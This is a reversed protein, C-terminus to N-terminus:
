CCRTFSTTRASSRAADPEIDIAIEIPADRPSAGDGDDEDRAGPCRGCRVAAVRAASGCFDSRSRSRPPRRTASRTSAPAATAKLSGAAVVDLNFLIVSLANNFDHAIGGALTSMAELRQMREIREALEDHQAFVLM